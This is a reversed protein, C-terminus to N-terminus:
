TSAVVDVEDTSGHLGSAGRFHSVVSDRHNRAPNVSLSFITEEPSARIDGNERPTEWCRPPRTTPEAIAGPRDLVTSTEKMSQRM